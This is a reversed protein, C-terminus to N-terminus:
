FLWLYENAGVRGWRNGGGTAGVPRGAPMSYIDSPGLANKGLCAHNPSAAYDPVWQGNGRQAGKANQMGGPGDLALGSVCTAMWLLNVAEGGQSRLPRGQGVDACRRGPKFWRLGPKVRWGPRSCECGSEWFRETRM